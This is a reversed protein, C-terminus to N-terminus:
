VWAPRDVNVIDSLVHDTLAYKGLVTLFMARWRNYNDAARDLVLPVLVKINLVAIAAAHIAAYKADNADLAASRDAEAKERAERAVREAKIEDM